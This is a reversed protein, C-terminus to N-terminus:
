QVYAALGAGNIYGVGVWSSTTSRLMLAPLGPPELITSLATKLRLPLMSDSGHSPAILGVGQDESFPSAHMSHLTASWICEVRLLVVLVM